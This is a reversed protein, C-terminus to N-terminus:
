RAAYIGRKAPLWYTFGFLFTGLVTRLPAPNKEKLVKFALPIELAHAALIITALWVIWHHSNGSVCLWTTVAYLGLLVVNNAIWFGKGQM